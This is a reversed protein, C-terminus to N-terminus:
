IPWLNRSILGKKSLNINKLTSSYLLIMDQLFLLMQVKLWGCQKQVSGTNDKNTHIMFNDFELPFPIYNKM